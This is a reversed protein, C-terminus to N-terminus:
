CTHSLGRPGRNAAQPLRPREWRPRTCELAHVPICLTVPVGLLSLYNYFVNKFDEGSSINKLFQNSLSLSMPTLSVDIPQRGYAGWCPISGAVKQHIVSWGVSGGLGASLYMKVTIHTEKGTYESALSLAAPGIVLKSASLLLFPIGQSRGWGRRSM